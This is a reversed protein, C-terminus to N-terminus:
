EAGSGFHPRTHRGPNSGDKSSESTTPRVKQYEKLLNKQYSKSYRRSFKAPFIPKQPIKGHLMGELQFTALNEMWAMSEARTLGEPMTLEEETLKYQNVAPNNEVREANM